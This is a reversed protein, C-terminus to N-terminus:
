PDEVLGTVPSPVDALGKTNGLSEFRVMTTVKVTPPELATITHPPCMALFVSQILLAFGCPDGYWMTFLLKAHEGPLQELLPLFRAKAPPATIAVSRAM